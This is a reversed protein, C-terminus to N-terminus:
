LAGETEATGHKMSMTQLARPRLVVPMKLERSLAAVLPLKQFEAAFARLSAQLSFRM